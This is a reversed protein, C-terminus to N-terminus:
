VCVDRDNCSSLTLNCFLTCGLDLHLVTIHTGVNCCCYMGGLVCVSRYTCEVNKQMESERFFANGCLGVVVLGRRERFHVFIM